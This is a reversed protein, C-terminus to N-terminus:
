LCNVNTQLRVVRLRSLISDRDNRIRRSFLWGHLHLIQQAVFELRASGALIAEKQTLKQLNAWANLWHGCSYLVQLPNTISTKDFFCGCELMVLYILM